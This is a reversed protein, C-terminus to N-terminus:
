VQTADNWLYEFYNKAYKALGPHDSWIAIFGGVGEEEAFVIVVERSDSIVGGGFMQERRRVEAVEALRRVLKQDAVKSVMVHVECGRARAATVLPQLSEILPKTLIPAAILLEHESRAAVEKLKGLISEEGRLIWIDPKERAGRKEYIPMLESLVLEEYGKMKREMLLRISELATAPSKAVYRAPRGGHVEIFGKQDLAGLIEYVKSYPVQAVESIESATMPGNEVLAIYTRTEYETLGLEQLAKRVRDSVMSQDTM